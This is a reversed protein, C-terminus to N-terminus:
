NRSPEEPLQVKRRRESLRSRVEWSGWLALAAGAMLTSKLTSPEDHEDTTAAVPLPPLPAADQEAVYADIAADWMNYYSLPVAPADAGPAPAAPPAEDREPIVDTGPVLPSALSPEREPSLLAGITTSLTLPQAIPSLLSTTGQPVPAVATPSATTSPNLTTSSLPVLFLVPQVHGGSTPILTVVPVFTVDSPHSPQSTTTTHTVTVTEVTGTVNTTTTGFAALKPVLVSANPSGLGTVQDYGPGAYYYANNGSTIDHFAATTSTLATTSTQSYLATLTQSSSLPSGHAQDALAVLASWQPTGASTGGVQFWGSQGQYSTSDYVAFGTNPNANYSVDPTTRGTALVGDNAQYSPASEYTSVGGASGGLGYGSWATEGAYTGSSSVNLTTGGVAVVNPAVSPWEPGSLGGDDGSAAVYTVGPTTFLSNYATEGSFESTGWSMSVVNAHGSAYQIGAVLDNLNSSNAEVLLIKAGPAVALAWEVDLSTELAWGANTAPLSSGGNENVVSLFSSASGYASLGMQTDFTNLDSAINSDGYADVIAITEGAGTETLKNIGYASDLQAVTLASSPLPTPVPTPTPTPNPTPSGGHGRGWDQTVTTAPM